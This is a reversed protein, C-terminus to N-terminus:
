FRNILRKLNWVHGELLNNGDLSTYNHMAHILLNWKGMVGLGM